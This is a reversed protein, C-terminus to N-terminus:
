IHLPMSSGKQLCSGVFARRSIGSVSGGDGAGGAGVGGNGGVRTGGVSSSNYSRSTNLVPPTTLPQTAMLNHTSFEGGSMWQSPLRAALDPFRASVTHYEDDGGQGTDRFFGTSRGSLRRRFHRSSGSTSDSSSSRRSPRGGGGGGRSNGIDGNATDEIGFENETPDGVSTDPNNKVVSRPGRTWFKRGTLTTWGHGSGSMNETTGTATAAPDTPDAQQGYTQQTSKPSRKSTPSNIESPEPSPLPSHEAIIDLQQMVHFVNRVLERGQRGGADDRDGDIGDDSYDDSASEGASSYGGSSRHSIDLGGSFSM